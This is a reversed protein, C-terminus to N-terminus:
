DVLTITHQPPIVAQVRASREPDAGDVLAQGAPICRAEDDAGLPAVDELGPNAGQRGLTMTDRDMRLGLPTQPGSM